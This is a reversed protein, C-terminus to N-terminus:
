LLWVFDQIEYILPLCGHFIIIIINTCVTKEGKTPPNIYLKNGKVSKSSGDKVIRPVHYKVGTNLHYEIKRLLNSPGITEM